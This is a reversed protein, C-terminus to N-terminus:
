RSATSGARVLELAAFIGAPGAGVIVVEYRKTFDPAGAPVVHLGSNRGARKL